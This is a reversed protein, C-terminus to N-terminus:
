PTTPHQTASTPSSKHPFSHAFHPGQRQQSTTYRFFRPLTETKLKTVESSSLRTFVYIRFDGEHFSIIDIVLPTGGRGACPCKNPPKRSVIGRDFLYSLSYM